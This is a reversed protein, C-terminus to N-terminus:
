KRIRELGGLTLRAQGYRPLGLTIMDFLTDVFELYDTKNKQIGRIVSTFAGDQYRLRLKAVTSNSMNLTEAIAYDTQREHILVIVALRKALMIQESDSLLESLFLPAQTASLRGIVENLQQWIEGALKEDLANKSVNVM